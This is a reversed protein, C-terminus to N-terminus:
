FRGAQARPVFRLGAIRVEEGLAQTRPGLVTVGEPGQERREPGTWSGLSPEKQRKKRDM